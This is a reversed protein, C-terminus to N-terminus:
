LQRRLWLYLNGVDYCVHHLVTPSFATNGSNLLPHGNPQLSPSCRTQLSLNRFAARVTRSGLPGHQPMFYWAKLPNQDVLGQISARSRCPLVASWYICPQQTWSVDTRKGSLEELPWTAGKFFTFHGLGLFWSIVM